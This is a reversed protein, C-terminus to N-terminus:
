AIAQKKFIAKQIEPLRYEYGSLMLKTDYDLSEEGCHSCIYGEIDSVLIKFGKKEVEITLKDRKMDEGCGVCKRVKIKDNSYKSM